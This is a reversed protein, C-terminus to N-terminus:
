LLCSNEQRSVMESRQGVWGDEEPRKAGGCLGEGTGGTVTVVGTVNIGMIPTALAVELGFLGKRGETM